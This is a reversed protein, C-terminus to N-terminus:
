EIKLAEQVLYHKCILNEEFSQVDLGQLTTSL